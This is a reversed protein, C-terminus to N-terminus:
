TKPIGSTTQENFKSISIKKYYKAGGALLKKGYRTLIGARTPNIPMSPPEPKTPAPTWYIGTIMPNRAMVELKLTELQLQKGQSLDVTGVWHNKM